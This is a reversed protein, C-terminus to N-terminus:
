LPGAGAAALVVAARTSPAPEGRRHGSGLLGDRRYDFLQGTERDHWVLAFERRSSARASRAASVSSGSTHGSSRSGPTTGPSCATPSPSPRPRPLGSSPSPAALSPLRALSGLFGRRAACHPEIIVPTSAPSFRSEVAAAGFPGGLLPRPLRPTSVQWRSLDSAKLSASQVARGGGAMTLRNPATGGLVDTRKGKRRRQKPRQM